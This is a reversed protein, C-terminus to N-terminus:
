QTVIRYIVRITVTADGVSPDTSSSTVMIAKNARIPQNFFASKYIGGGTNISASAFYGSEYDKFSVRLSFGAFPITSATNEFIVNYLDVYKGTGPSPILELPNSYITAIRAANVVSVSELLQLGGSSGPALNAIEQTTTKVTTGNQTIPVIETGTLQAAQGLASIKKNENM